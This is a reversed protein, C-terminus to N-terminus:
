RFDPVFMPSKGRVILENRPKRYLNWSGLHIPRSLKDSWVLFYYWGTGGHFGNFRRLTNSRSFRWVMWPERVFNERTNEYFLSCDLVLLRLDTDSANRYALVVKRPLVSVKTQLVTQKTPMNPLSTPNPFVEPPLPDDPDIAPQRDVRDEPNKKVDSPTPPFERGLYFSMLAVLLMFGVTRRRSTKLDGRVRIRQQGEGILHETPEAVPEAVPPRRKKSRPPEVVPAISAPVYRKRLDQFDQRDPLHDAVKVILDDLWGERNAKLTTNYVIDGRTSGEIKAERDIDWNALLFQDFELRTFGTTIVESLAVLERGNM